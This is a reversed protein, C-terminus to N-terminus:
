NAPQVSDGLAAAREATTEFVDGPQYTVGAEHLPQSTEVQQGKGEAFTRRVRVKVLEPEVARNAPTKPNAATGITEDAKAFRRTEIAKM